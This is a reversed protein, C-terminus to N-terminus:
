FTIKPNRTHNRFHVSRPTPGSRKPPGVTKMSLWPPSATLSLSQVPFLLGYHTSGLHSKMASKPKVSNTMTQTIEAAHSKLVSISSELEM